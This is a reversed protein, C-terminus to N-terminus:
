EDEDKVLIWGYKTHVAATGDGFTVHWNGHEDPVIEEATVWTTLESM